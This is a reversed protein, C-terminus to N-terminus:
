EGLGKDLYEKFKESAEDTIDDTQVNGKWIFFRDPIGSDQNLIIHYKDKYNDVVFKRILAQLDMNPNGSMTNQRLINLKQNLFQTRRGLDALKVEDDTDIVQKQVEKLETNIKKIAALTDKDCSLLRLKDYFNGSSSIANLRVVAVKAKPLEQGQVISMMLVSLVAAPLLTKM